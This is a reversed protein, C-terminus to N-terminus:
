PLERKVAISYDRDPSGTNTVSISIVNEGVDLSDNGTVSVTAGSDTPTATVTVSTVSNAVSASYETVDTDFSPTLTGSSITLATLETAHELDDAAQWATDVNSWWSLSSIAVNEENRTRVGTAPNGYEIECTVGDPSQVACIDSPLFSLDLNNYFLGDKGIQDAEGSGGNIITWKAM